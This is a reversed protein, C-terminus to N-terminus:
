STNEYRTGNIVPKVFPKLIGPPFHNTHYAKKVETKFKSLKEPFLLTQSRSQAIIKLRTTFVKFLSYQKLQDAFLQKALFQALKEFPIEDIFNYKM